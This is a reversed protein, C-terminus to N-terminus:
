HESNKVDNFVVRDVLITLGYCVIGKIGTTKDVVEKQYYGGGGGYGGYGGRGGGYGGSGGYSGGGGYAGGGGGYSGGDYGGGTFPLYVYM